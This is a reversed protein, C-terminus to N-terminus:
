KIIINSKVTGNSYTVREIYKGQAPADIQAGDITFYQISVIDEDSLTEDIGDLIKVNLTFNLTVMKADPTVLYLTAKCTTGVSLTYAEHQGLVFESYDGEAIPEIYFTTANGAGAWSSPLGESTLWYGGNNATGEKHINFTGDTLIAYLDAQTPDIYQAVDTLDLPVRTSNPYGIWPETDLVLDYTKLNECQEPATIEPIVDPVITVTTKVVVTDIGNVFAWSGSFIDGESVLEQMTCIELKDSEPWCKICIPSTGWAAMNGTSDRWGDTTNKVLTKDAENLIYLMEDSIYEIGLKEKIATTDLAVFVPTYGKSVEFDANKEIVEYLGVPEPIEGFYTLKVNDFGFWNCNSLNDRVGFTLTGDTVVVEEVTYIKAADFVDQEATATENEFDYIDIATAAEGAFLEMSGTTENAATSQDAAFIAASVAYKGNPLGEITQAISRTDVDTDVSHRWIELANGNIYASNINGKVGMDNNQNIGTTHTGTYGEKGAEMDPNVVYFTYDAPNEEDAKTAYTYTKIADAAEAVEANVAEITAEENQYVALADALATALAEDETAEHIGGLIGGQLDKMTNILALLMNKQTYLELSPAYADFEEVKYIQFYPSNGTGKDFYPTSGDFGVLKATNKLCSLTYAENAAAVLFTSNTADATENLEMSWGSTAVAGFYKQSSVQQLTISDKQGDIGPKLVINWKYADANELAGKEQLAGNTGEENSALFKGSTHYLYYVGSETVGSTPAQPEANPDGLFQLRFNDARAFNATANEMVVGLNIEHNTVFVEATYDNATGLETKAENAVLFFGKGGFDAAVTVRYKGNPLGKVNQTVSFNPLASGAWYQFYVNGEGYTPIRGDENDRTCYETSEAGAKTWGPFTSQRDAQIAEFSPNEIMFTYEGSPDTLRCAKEAAKLDALAQVLDNSGDTYAAEAVAFAEEYKAYGSFEAYAASEAKLAEVTAKYAEFEKESAYLGELAEAINEAAANLDEETAESDMLLLQLANVADTLAKESAKSHTAASALRALVDDTTNKQAKFLQFNDAISWSGEETAGDYADKRIGIVLDQGEEVTIGSLTIGYKQQGFALNADSMSNAFGNAGGTETESYLSRFPATLAEADGAQAYLFASITETGAEYAEGADNWTPRQFAQATLIYEGAELGSITQNM